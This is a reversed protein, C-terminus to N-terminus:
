GVSDLWRTMVREAAAALASGHTAADARLDHPDIGRTSLEHSHGVLWPELRTPDVELHFQLGLVDTGLAFAQHETVGTSALSVAGAPLTVEEGHWHLVPIGDLPALVSDRGAATLDIPAYGIEATRAPRVEADMAAAIFQAGLCVGLLPGGRDFRARVAALEDGVFPYTAADNVSIPGGLVIALEAAAFADRPIAETAVDVYRVEFGRGVLLPELLGLNEFDVHRLAIASRTM